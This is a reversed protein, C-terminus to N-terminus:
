RNSSTKGREYHTQYEIEEDFIALNALLAPNDTLCLSKHFVMFEIDIILLSLWQKTLPSKKHCSLFHAMESPLCSDIITNFHFEPGYLGDALDMGVIRWPYGNIGFSVLFLVKGSQNQVITFM